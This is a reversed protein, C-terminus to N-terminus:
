RFLDVAGSGCCGLAGIVLVKLGKGSGGPLANKVAEIMVGENDYLELKRLVKGNKQATFALAGVVAMSGLHRSVDVQRQRKM